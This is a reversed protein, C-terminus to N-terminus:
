KAFINQVHHSNHQSPSLPFSTVCISYYPATIAAPRQNTPRLISLIGRDKAKIRVILVNIGQQMSYSVTPSADEKGEVLPVASCSNFVKPPATAIKPHALLFFSCSLPVWNVLDSVFAFTLVIYGRGSTNITRM